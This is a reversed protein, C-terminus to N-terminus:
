CLTARRRVRGRQPAPLDLPACDRPLNHAAVYVSCLHRANVRVDMSPCTWQKKTANSCIRIDGADIELYGTEESNRARFCLALIVRMIGNM